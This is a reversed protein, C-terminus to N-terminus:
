KSFEPHKAWYERLHKINIAYGIGTSIYTDLTGIVARISQLPDVGMMTISGHSSTAEIDKSLQELGKSIGGERMSIIGLVEGESSLLAGGSNGKNIPAQICIISGSQDMGSIMGKHTVMAPTALPYGSFYVESGVKWENVKSFLVSQTHKPKSAVKLIAFDFQLPSPDSQSPASICNASLIEGSNTKVKLDQFITFNTQQQQVTVTSVVHFCTVVLSDSIFFGTGKSKGKVSTIEVTSNRSLDIIDMANGVRTGLLSLIVFLGISLRKM